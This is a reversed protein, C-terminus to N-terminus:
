QRKVSVKWGISTVWIGTPGYARLHYACRRGFRLRPERLMEWEYYIVSFMVHAQSDQHDLELTKDYMSIAQNYEGATSYVDGLHRYAWKSTPLIEIALQIEEEAM